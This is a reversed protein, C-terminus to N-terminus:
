GGRWVVPGVIHVLDPDPLVISPVGPAIPTLVIRDRELGYRKIVMLEQEDWWAVVVDGAEPKKAIDVAVYDGPAFTRDVKLAEPSLMCRGNVIYCHTTDINAGRRALHERPIYAVEGEVPNADENGAAIEGYVAVAVWDPHVRYKGLQKTVGSDLPPLGNSVRRLNDLTVGYARAIAQAVGFSVGDAGRAELNQITGHSVGALKAAQRLSLNRADRLAKMREGPTLKEMPPLSVAQVDLRNVVM